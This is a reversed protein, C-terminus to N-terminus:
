AAVNVFCSVISAAFRISSASDMLLSSFSFFLFDPKLRDQLNSLFRLVVLTTFALGRDNASEGSCLIGSLIGSVGGGTMGVGSVGGGFMGGM